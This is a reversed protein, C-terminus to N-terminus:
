KKNINNDIIKEKPILKITIGIVDPLGPGGTGVTGEGSIDDIDWVSIGPHREICDSVKTCKKPCWSYKGEPCIKCVTKCVDSQWLVGRTPCNIVDTIHSKVYDECLDGPTKCNAICGKLSAEQQQLRTLEAVKPDKQLEEIKKELDEIEKNLVDVQNQLCKKANDCKGQRAKYTRIQAPCSGTPPNPFPDEGRLFKQVDSDGCAGSPTGGGGSGGGNNNNSNSCAPHNPNQQCIYNPPAGAYILVVTGLLVVIGVMVLAKKDRVMESRRLFKREYKGM